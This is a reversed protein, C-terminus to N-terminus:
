IVHMGVAITVQRPKNWLDKYYLARHSGRESILVQGDVALLTVFTAMLALM